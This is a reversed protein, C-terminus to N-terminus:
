VPGRRGVLMCGDTALWNDISRSLCVRRGLFFSGFLPADCEWVRLILRFTAARGPQITTESVIRSLALAMRSARAFAPSRFFARQLQDHSADRQVSLPGAEDRHQDYAGARISSRAVGCIAM